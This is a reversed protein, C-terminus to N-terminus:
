PNREGEPGEIFLELGDIDVAQQPTDFTLTETDMTVIKPATETLVNGDGDLINGFIMQENGPGYQNSNWCEEDIRGVRVTHVEGTSQELGWGRVTVGNPDCRLDVDQGAQITGGNVGLQAAAAFALTFVAAGAMLAVLFRKM